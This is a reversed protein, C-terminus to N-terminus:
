NHGGSGNHLFLHLLGVYTNTLPVLGFRSHHPFNANDELNGCSIHSDDGASVPARLCRGGGFEVWIFM